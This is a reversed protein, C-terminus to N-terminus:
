PKRPYAICYLIGLAHVEEATYGTESAVKSYEFEFHTGDETWHGLPHERTYGMSM